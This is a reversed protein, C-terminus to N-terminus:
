KNRFVFEHSSGVIYGSISGLVGGTIIGGLVALGAMEAGNAYIVGAAAGIGAGIYFGQGLGVLRDGFKIKKVERLSLKGFKAKDNNRFFLSDNRIVLKSTRIKEGTYLLVEGKKKAGFSNIKEQYSIPIPDRKVHIINACSFIFISFFILIFIAPKNRM